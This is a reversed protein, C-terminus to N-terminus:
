LHLEVTDIINKEKIEQEFEAADAVGNVTIGSLLGWNPGSLWLKNQEGDAVIEVDVIVVSGGDKISLGIVGNVSLNKLELGDVAQGGVTALANNTDAAEITLGDLTVNDALIEVAKGIIKAEGKNKAILAVEREIKLQPRNTAGEYAFPVEYDGDELYITNLANNNLAAVLQDANSVVKTDIFDGYATVNEETAGTNNAIIGAKLAIFNAKTDRPATFGVAEELGTFDNGSISLNAAATDTGIGAAVDKFTSGTVNIKAGQNLYVGAGQLNKFESDSIHLTPSYSVSTLIGNTYEESNGDFTVNEITVSANTEVYIGMPRLAGVATFSADITVDGCGEITLGKNLNFGEYNGAGIVINDDESASDVAAQIGSYEAGSRTNYVINDQPVLIRDGIVVNGESFTNKELIEVLNANGYFNNAGIKVNLFTNNEITYEATTQFNNYFYIGISDNWKEKEITDIGDISNNKLTLIPLRGDGKPQSGGWGEGGHSQVIIGRWKTSDPQSPNTPSTAFVENGEYTWAGSGFDARNHWIGLNYGYLINNKVTGDGLNWYPQIQLATNGGNITNGEVIGARGQLYLASWGSTSEIYNNKVITGNNTVIDNFTRVNDIKQSDSIGFHVAVKDSYSIVRNNSFENDYGTFHIERVVSCEIAEEVYFSLGKVVVDNATVYVLSADKIEVDDPYIIVAEANREGTGAIGANPGLLTLPKDIVLQEEYEGPAVAIVDGEEADDIVDQISGHAPVLLNGVVVDRTATFGGDATRVTITAYGGSIGTVVGNADVTAVSPDSSSWTVKKNSANSPSVTVAITETDNVTLLMVDPDVSIARVKVKTPRDEEEDEDPEDPAPPEFVETGEVTEGAITAKVGEAM